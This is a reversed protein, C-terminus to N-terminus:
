IAGIAAAVLYFHTAVDVDTAFAVTDAVDSAVIPDVVDTPVVVVDGAATPGGQATDCFVLLLLSLMLSFLSATMLLQFLFLM